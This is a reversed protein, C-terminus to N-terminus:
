EADTHVEMLAAGRFAAIVEEPTREPRNNWNVISDCGIFKYLRASSGNAARVKNLVGMACVRGERDEITFKCHGHKEIYDAADLLSKSIPNLLRRSTM